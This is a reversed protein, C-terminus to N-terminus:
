LTLYCIFAVHIWVFLFNCFHHYKVEKPLLSIFDRQFQPEIVQMMFRVQPAECTDILHDLAVLREASSWGKFTDLWSKLKLPQPPTFMNLKRCWPKGSVSYIKKLRKRELAESEGDDTSSDEFSDEGPGRKRACKDSSEADTELNNLKRKRQM